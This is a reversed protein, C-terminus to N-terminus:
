FRTPLFLEFIAVTGKAKVIDGIKQMAVIAPPHRSLKEFTDRIKPDNMMESLNPTGSSAYRRYIMATSPTACRLFPRAILRRTLFM